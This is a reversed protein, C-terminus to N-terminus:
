QQAIFKNKSRAQRHLSLTEPVNVCAPFYLLFLKVLLQCFAIIFHHTLPSGQTLIDMLQQTTNSHKNHNTPDVHIRDYLRDLIVRHTRSVRCVASRRGKNIQAENDEIMNSSTRMSFLRANPPVFDIDELPEQNKLTSKSCAQVRKRSAPAIYLYNQGM